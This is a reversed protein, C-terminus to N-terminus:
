LYSCYIGMVLDLSLSPTRNHGGDAKIVMRLRKRFSLIAKDIITEPIAKWEKVIEKKLQAFETVHQHKHIVSEICSWFCYGLPNLDPSHPPWFEPELLEPM